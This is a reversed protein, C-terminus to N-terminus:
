AIWEKKKKQSLRHRIGVHNQVGSARFDSRHKEYGSQELGHDTQVAGGPKRLAM